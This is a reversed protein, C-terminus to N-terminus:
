GVYQASMKMDQASSISNFKKKSLSDYEKLDMSKKVTKM